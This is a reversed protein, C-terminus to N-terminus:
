RDRTVSDEPWRPTPFSPGYPAQNWIEQVTRGARYATPVSFLAGQANLWGDEDRTGFDLESEWKVGKTNYHEVRQGPVATPLILASGGINYELEPLVIREAEMGPYGGRFRHVVTALDRKAYHRVFGTPLRGPIAEALAYLYPSNATGPKIWQSSVTAVFRDASVRKGLQGSALGAFTDAWLGVGYM